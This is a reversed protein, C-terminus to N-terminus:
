NTIINIIKDQVNIVRVIKKGIIKNNIKEIRYIKELLDKENYGKKTNITSILKGKIQIPLNIENEEIESNTELQIQGIVQNKKVFSNNKVLLITNRAVNIRIKKNTYTLIEIYSSKEVLQAYEGHTTRIYHVQLNPAFLVQGAHTTSIEQGVEATFIGGTHFTRMTLQTGPEGISQAALIGVAEGLDVVKSYSLHWGYCKRCISRSASCTLPSRVEIDQINLDLLITALKKSLIGKDKNSEIKERM